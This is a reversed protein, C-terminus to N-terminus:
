ELSVDRSQGAADADVHALHIRDATGRQLVEIDLNLGAGGTAGEISAQAGLSHEERDIRPRIGRDAPHSRRARGPRLGHAVAGHALVDERQRDHVTQALHHPGM